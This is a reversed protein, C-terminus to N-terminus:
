WVLVEVRVPEGGLEAYRNMRVVDSSTDPNAGFDKLESSVFVAAGRDRRRNQIRDISFDLRPKSGVPISEGTTRNATPATFDWDNRSIYVTDYTTDHSVVLFRLNQGNLTENGYHVINDAAESFNDNEPTEIDPSSPPNDKRFSRPTEIVPVLVFRMRYQNAVGAVSRFDTYNLGSNGTTTLNLVKHRDLEHFGSAVGFGTIAGQTSSNRDWASGGSGYTHSGPETLMTSTVAYAETHKSASALEDRYDPIFSSANLVIIGVALLYFIAAALFELNIQAKM